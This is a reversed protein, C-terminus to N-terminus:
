PLEDNFKLFTGIRKAAYLAVAFPLAFRVLDVLLTFWGTPSTLPHWTATATDGLYAPQHSRWSGPHYEATYIGPQSVTIEVAGTADTRVRRDGVTIYGSRADQGILSFRPDDLTDLMIPEGTATDRLEIRLTSATDSSNVVEISLESERIERQTGNDPEVIEATVGRVIGEVTISDPDIEDYRLAVGSSRTYPGSVVDVEVNDHMSSAPSETENGWVELLKPGDRIPEVRPGIDSPFAHVYVPRPTENLSRTGDRTSEILQDWDTDRATYYRWVGRVSVDGDESLTYGNWPQRQYIAVGDEDDPYSAYYIVAQPDYVDVELEQSVTVNDSVVRTEVESQNGVRAEVELRTYIDAELTLTGQGSHEFDYEFVPNHTGEATEVVTEDVRLRVENIGHDQISWSVIETDRLQAGDLRIRYDVFGRVTGEPAVYHVSQEPDIHM